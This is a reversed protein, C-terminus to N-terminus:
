TIHVMRRCLLVSKRWSESFITDLFRKLVKFMNEGTHREYLRIVMLCFNLIDVKWHFRVHVDLYPMSQHTSRDVAISFAWVERLGNSLIQLVDACVICNYSSAFIESCCGYVAMASEVQKFDMLRSELTGCSVFKIFLEFQRRTKIVVEYVESKGVEDSVSPEELNTFLNLDRERTVGM